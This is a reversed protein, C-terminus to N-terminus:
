SGVMMLPELSLFFDRETVRGRVTLIMLWEVVVAAVVAVVKECTCCSSRSCRSCRSCCCCCCCFCCCYLRSLSRKLLQPAKVGSQHTSGHREGSCAAWGLGLQGGQTTLVGCRWPAGAVSSVDVNRSPYQQKCHLTPIFTSRRQPSLSSLWSSHARSPHVQGKIADAGSNQLALHHTFRISTGSSICQAPQPQKVFDFQNGANPGLERAPARPNTGQNNPSQNSRKAEGPRVVDWSSM